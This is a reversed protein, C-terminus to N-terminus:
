INRIIARLHANAHISHFYSWWIYKDNIVLDVNIHCVMVFGIGYVMGLDGIFQILPVFWGSTTLPTFLKEPHTICETHQHANQKTSM